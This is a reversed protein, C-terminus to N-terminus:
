LSIFAQQVMNLFYCPHLFVGWTYQGGRSLGSARWRNLSETVAALMDQPADGPVSAKYQFYIGFVLLRWFLEHFVQGKSFQKYMSTLSKLGLPVETEPRNGMFKKPCGQPLILFVAWAKQWFSWCHYQHIIDKLFWQCKICNLNPLFSFNLVCLHIGVFVPLLM